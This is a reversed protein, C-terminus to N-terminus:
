HWAWPLVGFASPLLQGNSGRNGASNCRESCMDCFLLSFVHISKEGTAPPNVRLALEATLCARSGPQPISSPPPHGRFSVSSETKVPQPGKDAERFTVLHVGALGQLTLKWAMIFYEHGTIALTTLYVVMFLRGDLKQHPLVGSVCPCARGREWGKWFDKCVGRKRYAM